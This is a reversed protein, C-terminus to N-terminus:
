VSQAAQDADMALAWAALDQGEALQEGNGEADSTGLALALVSAPGHEQIAARVMALAEAECEYTGVLNATDLDILEYM